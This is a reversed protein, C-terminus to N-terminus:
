ISDPVDVNSQKEEMSSFADKSFRLFSKKWVMLGVLCIKM